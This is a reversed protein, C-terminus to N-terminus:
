EAFNRQTEIDDTSFMSRTYMFEWHLSISKMKMKKIDLPLQPDDILGFKGQLALSEVIEDYHQGTANL